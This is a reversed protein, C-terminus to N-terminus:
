NKNILQGGGYPNFELFTPTGIYWIDGDGFTQARLLAGNTNIKVTEQTSSIVHLSDKSVLDYADGFGNSKIQFKAYNVEGDIDFNGWGNTILLDLSNAKIDLNVKGAGDRILFFLDNLVLTNKCVLEETGEFSVNNISKFHLEVVISKDYTRLFNCANDNTISLLNGEQNFAVFNVLNEGGTILAKNVSDQVLVYKLHPGLFLESFGELAVEKTVEDGTTKVCDRDEEKECATFLLLGLGIILTRKM